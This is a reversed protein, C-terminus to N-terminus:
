RDHTPPRRSRDRLRGDEIRQADDLIRIKVLVDDREAEHLAERDLAAANGKGDLQGRGTFSL